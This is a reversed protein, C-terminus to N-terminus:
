QDLFERITEPIREFDNGLELVHVPVQRILTSYCQLARMRQAPFHLACSPALTKFAEAHTAPRIRTDLEHGIRALLVKRLPLERKM